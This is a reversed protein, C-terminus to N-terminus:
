MLGLKRLIWKVHEKVRNRPLWSNAFHHVCYTSDSVIYNLMPSEDPNLAAHACFWDGPFINFVNEHCDFEEITQIRRTKFNGLIIENIVDPMPKMDLSGDELIFHRDKYYDLCQKVWQCGKEAGFAAIEWRFDYAEGGIFYPLNLLDDFRKVVEVDCDLYIGGYNYVAYLRIYDAAFAYKKNDFAEKVWVSQDLPFRNTDWLMFKYDPLIKHWSEMCQSLLPPYKDGSLWCFHIIKPIM